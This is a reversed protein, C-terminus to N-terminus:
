GLNKLFIVLCDISCFDLRCEYYTGTTKNNEDSINIDFTCNDKSSITIWGVCKRVEDLTGERGCSDCKYKTIKL